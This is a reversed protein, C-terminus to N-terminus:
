SVDKDHLSHEIESNIETAIMLIPSSPTLIRNPFLHVNSITKSAELSIGYVSSVSPAPRGLLRRRTRAVSRKLRKLPKLSQWLPDRQVSQLEALSEAASRQAISIEQKASSLKTGLEKLREELTEIQRNAAELQREALTARQAIELNLRHHSEVISDQIIREARDSSDQFSELQSAIASVAKEIQQRSTKSQEVLDVTRDKLLAEIRSVALKLNKEVSVSNRSFLDHLRGTADLITDQTSREREFIASYIRENSVAFAEAEKSWKLSVATNSELLGVELDKLTFFLADWQSAEKISEAKLAEQEQRLAILKNQQAAVAAENWRFGQVFPSLMFPDFCNPPGVLLSELEPHDNHFYFRNLGDDYTFSYGLAQLQTEFGDYNPIRTDPAYSEIVLAWPRISSPLWSSIVECEMGEVDIKLWHIPRDGYRDLLDSLKVSQVKIPDVTFGHSRHQEAISQQGTSLGTGPIAHFLVEGENCGIAAQIVDEDPRARRILEAYEAIPEVHIGRWGAEYFAMSVSDIIPHHAGIDIYFGTGVKSFARWLIVDEFNQAYSIM